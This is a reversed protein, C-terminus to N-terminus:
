YKLVSVFKKKKNVFCIWSVIENEFKLWYYWVCRRTTRWAIWSGRFTKPKLSSNTPFTKCSVLSSGLSFISAKIRYENCNWKNKWCYKNRKDYFIPKFIGFLNDLLSLFYIELTRCHKQKLSTIGFFNKRALHTVILWRLFYCFVVCFLSFLYKSSCRRGSVMEARTEELGDSSM